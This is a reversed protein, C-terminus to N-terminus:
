SADYRVDTLYLGDAPATPGAARRDRAALVTLVHEPEWTGDGVLRLTGTLNRVQHHLFSRSAAVVRIREGDGEVRLVDLTKEPSKAQCQTARFSTFDHHGVLLAAAANMRDTDLPKPVHWARGIDLALPARRNVIEYRYARGMASFRAHFGEFGIECALVAIPLPRLHANIAQMVTHPDFRDSVLDLHAVQGTAHVDADTRGAGYVETTEGSFKFVADELAAQITPLEGQRQWGKFPSGDYEVTIKFRPM